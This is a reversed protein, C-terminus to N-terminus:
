MVIDEEGIEDRNGSIVIARQIVNRVQRANGPWRQSSLLEIAAASLTKRGPASARIFFLALPPIDERRERLPPIHLRLTEIRYLLDLRFRGREVAEQLNRSTASIFRLDVKTAARGGLRWLEGTELTRLLTAQVEESAEGIEDLFLTGGQALEFAGPRDFAGTFAGRNSGFLESAVLEEPLAACNRAVFPARRRGSMELLTRAALDKGTGSEGTILLPYDCAAFIRLQEKITRIAPSEGIFPSSSDSFRGVARALSVKLEHLPAPKALFDTAGCRMARVVSGPDSRGSLVIVPPGGRLRGTAALFEFPDGRELELDIIIADAEGKRVAALASQCERDHIVRYDDGLMTALTRAGRPDNELDIVTYM